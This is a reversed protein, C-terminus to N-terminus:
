GLRVWHGGLVTLVTQFHDEAGARPQCGVTKAMLSPSSTQGFDLGREAVKMVRSQAVRYQNGFLHVAKSARHM